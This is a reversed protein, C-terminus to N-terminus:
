LTLFVPIIAPGKFSTPILSSPNWDVCGVLPPATVATRASLQAFQTSVVVGRLPSLKGTKKALLGAPHSASSRMSVPSTSVFGAGVVVCLVLRSEIDAM